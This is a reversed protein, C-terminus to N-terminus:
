RYLHTAALAQEVKKRANPIEPIFKGVVDKTWGTKSIRTEPYSEGYGLFSLTNLAFLLQVAALEQGTLQERELFSLAGATLDYLEAHKEEGALLKRLLSLMRAAAIRADPKAALEEFINMEPVANVIRWVDKGRVISLLSQSYEQLGFRLKSKEQRVSKATAGILGLERTFVRFYKNSEGDSNSKLIIGETRYIHHAV